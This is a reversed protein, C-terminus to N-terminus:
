PKEGGMHRGMHIFPVLSSLAPPYGQSPSAYWGAHYFYKTPWSVFIPYAGAHPAKQSSLLRCTGKELLQITTTLLKEQTSVTTVTQSNIVFNVFDGKGRKKWTIFKINLKREEPRVRTPVLILDESVQLLMQLSASPVLTQVCSQHLKLDLYSSRFQSVTQQRM